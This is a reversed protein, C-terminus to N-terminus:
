PAGGGGQALGGGGDFHAGIGGISEEGHIDEVVEVISGYARASESTSERTREGAGFYKVLTSRLLLVYAASTVGWLALSTLPGEVLGLARAAAVTLAGAGLLAAVLGPLFFESALLVVGAAAWLLTISSPDM